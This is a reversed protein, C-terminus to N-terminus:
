GRSRRKITPMRNFLKPDVAALLPLGGPLQKTATLRATMLAAFKPNAADATPRCKHSSYSTPTPNLGKGPPEERKLYPNHLVGFSPM